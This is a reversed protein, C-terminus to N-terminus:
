KAIEVTANGSVTSIKCSGESPLNEKNEPFTFKGSVTSHSFDKMTLLSLHVSGSTTSVTVTKGDSSLVEVAGSVTSIKFNDNSIVSSLSIKGSTTSCQLDNCTLDQLYAAGSVSSIKVNSASSVNALSADGSTTNVAVSACSANTLSIKGSTNNLSIDGLSLSTDSLNISGSITSVTIAAYDKKPLNVTVTHKESYGLNTIALKEFWNRNDVVKYTLKGDSVSIDRSFLDTEVYDISLTDSDTLNFTVNAEIESINLSTVPMNATFTKNVYEFKSTNAFNSVDSGSLFVGCVTIVLGICICVIAITIAIKM